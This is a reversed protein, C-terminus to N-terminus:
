YNQVKLQQENIKAVPYIPMNRQEKKWKMNEPLWSMMLWIVQSCNSKCQRM